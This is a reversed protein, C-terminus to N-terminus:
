FDRSRINGGVVLPYGHIDGLHYEGTKFRVDVVMFGRKFNLEFHSLTKYNNNFSPFFQKNMLDYLLIFFLVGWVPLLVRNTFMKKM